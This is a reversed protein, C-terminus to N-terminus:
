QKSLAKAAFLEAPKKRSTKDMHNYAVYLYLWYDLAELTCIM